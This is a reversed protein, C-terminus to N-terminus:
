ETGKKVPEYRIGRQAGTNTQLIVGEKELEQLHLRIVKSNTKPLSTTIGLESYQNALESAHLASDSLNLLHLTFEKSLAPKVDSSSEIPQKLPNSLLPSESIQCQKLRRQLDKITVVRMESQAILNAICSKLDCIEEEEVNHKELQEALLKKIAIYQLSENEM